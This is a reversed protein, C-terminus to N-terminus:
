KGDSDGHVGTVGFALKENISVDHCQFLVLLNSKSM